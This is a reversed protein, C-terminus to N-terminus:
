SRAGPGPKPRATGDPETPSLVVPPLPREDQAVRHRDAEAVPDPDVGDPACALTAHLMARRLLLHADDRADRRQTLLHASRTVVQVAEEALEEARRYHWARNV